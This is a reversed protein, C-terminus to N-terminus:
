PALGLAVTRPAEWVKALTHYEGCEGMADMGVEEMRGFLERNVTTGLKLWSETRKAVEPSVNPLAVSSVDCPVTSSELDAFLDPYPARWVPYCNRLLEVGEPVALTQANLRRERWARIHELHLDGFTLTIHEVTPLNSKLTSLALSIRDVYTPSSESLGGILPVGLLPLDLHQM